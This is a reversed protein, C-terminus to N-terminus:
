PKARPWIVFSLGAEHSHVQTHQDLRGVGNKREALFRLVRRAGFCCRAPKPRWFEAHSVNDKSGNTPKLKVSKGDFKFLLDKAIVRTLSRPTKVEIQNVEIQVLRFSM